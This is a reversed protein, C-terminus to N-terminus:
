SLVPTSTALRIPQRRNYTLSKWLWEAPGLQFRRLWVTSFILQFLWIEAVVLYLYQLRISGFYSMGYGYFFFTCLAAQLLFNTLPMQGVAGLARSLLGARGAQYLGIVLSAWGVAAFAREIPQVLDALPLTGSSILKPYDVIAAEYTPLSLWAVAQSVVLGGLAIAAYQGTSFRNTFFGWRFLAMGLLMLSAIDWIKRQYFQWAQDYQFRPVLFDWVDSYAASRTTAIAKTDKEKDYAIGKVMGEWASKDGKQEDTLKVKKNKKELAVVKQYKTFKERQETYNWYGKGSFFLGTVIAAILFGRASLRQLPFMFVAVIGYHFLIDVPSLLIFANVIGFVLLWLSGRIYLEPIAYGATTKPRALFPLLGVGVVLALLPAMANDLLLHTWKLLQYNGGHPGRWLQTAQAQTLGFARISVLLLGLLAVGLLVHRVTLRPGADPQTYDRQAEPLSAPEVAYDTKNEM